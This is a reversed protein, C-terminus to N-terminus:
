LIRIPPIDFCVADTGTKTRSCKVLKEIMSGVFYVVGFGDLYPAMIRINIRSIQYELYAIFAIDTLFDFIRYIGVPTFPCPCTNEIGNADAIGLSVQSPYQCIALPTVTPYPQIITSPQIISVKKPIIVSYNDNFKRASLLIM